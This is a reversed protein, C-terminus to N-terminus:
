GGNSNLLESLNMPLVVTFTTGKGPESEATIEGKHNQVISYCIALGLGTGVGVGKTTFGPDFIKPVNDKSIGVGTDKIKIHVKDHKKLTTITIEGKGKIAQRANVLINLFVQNLQGPYCAIPPIEAYEKRVTIDHKISHHILTLTDEIGEHIDVTKLEAEDLRAFSRLRRVINTVREAGTAIVKNSDDIVDLTAKLDPYAKHEDAFHANVIDKLRVISRMLTDHMSNMAGLPTNIEHAVGAVLVGLSAMKESQALQAQTERLHRNANEIEELVAKMQTIDHAVGILEMVDGNENLIASAKTTFWRTSGDKHLMRFEYGDEHEPHDQFGSKFWDISEQLDDPHLVPFLPKGLLDSVEYGMIENVKPSIYSFKGQPTLSYIIDNANEVLSRFREESIRLTEEFKQKEIYIGIIESATQLTRIDEDDWEREREVEDFGIFGYWNGEVQIPICLISLIGQPELIAKEEDTFSSVLGKVQAGETLLNRWRDTLESYPFHQLAPNDIQPEVGAACVEIIQRMCLGDNEDEFNEFIYVRGAGSAELLHGMAGPLADTTGGGTLLTRSFDALGEEYRLRNAIADEAKKSETIDRGISAYGILDGSEKRIPFISLDTIFPTGDKKTFEFEGRFGGTKDLSARIRADDPGMIDRVNRDRFDDDAYGTHVRHIPNKEIFYGDADFIFIADNANIFLERFLRLNDEAKRQDTIDIGTAVVFEVNGTGDLLCTNSWSILRREGSKTIWCSEVSM